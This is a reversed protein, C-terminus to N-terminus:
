QSEAREDCGCDRSGPEDSGSHARLRVCCMGPEPEFSAEFGTDGYGDVAAQLLADNLGCVLETHSQALRHFPCNRLQVEDNGVAVPEYGHDSLVALMTSVRSGADPTPAADPTSGADPTRTTNPAPARTAASMEAALQAGLARAEDDLADSLDKGTRRSEDVAGALLEGALEYDRAPLSVGVERASRRYIKSPRGAGPGTKDTLRRSRGDLLGSDVLRDLHRAVAARGLGVAAAVDDRSVWGNSAAVFDYVARRTPEALEGILSVRDGGAPEGTADFTRASNKTM